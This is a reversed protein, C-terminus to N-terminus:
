GKGCAQLRRGRAVEGLQAARQQLEADAKPIRLTHSTSPPELRVVRAFRVKQGQLRRVAEQAEAESSHRGFSFGPELEPLNRVEEFAVQNRRLEDARREMTAKSTYRGMYVLWSGPRERSLVTWGGDPLLQRLMAEAQPLEASTFPGSELCVPPPVRKALTAPPLIQLAEPAVQAALRQPEREGNPSAGLVADLWGQTWGFYLANAALLLALVVRLV